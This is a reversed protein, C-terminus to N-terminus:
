PKITGEVTKEQSVSLQSSLWSRLMESIGPVEGIYVLIQNNKLENIEFVKDSDRYTYASFEPQSAFAQFDTWTKFSLLQMKQNINVQTPSSAMSNSLLPTHLNETKSMQTVLAKIDTQLAKIETITKETNTEYKNEVADLINTLRNELFHQLLMLSNLIKKQNESNKTIAELINEFPQDQNLTSKPM